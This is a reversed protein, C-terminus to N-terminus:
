NTRFTYVGSSSRNGNADNAIIKWYYTASNEVEVELSTEQAQYDITEILITADTQDLYIEYNILDDDVDSCTWNLTVLSNIDPTVNAGSRPTILEAPFPAYNIVADGALYFKWSESEAANTDPEGISKVLWSYPEAKALAITTQNTEATYSQSSQTLLNSVVVEYSVADTAASWSFSVNSQTDNLSVGDLCTENNAPSLLSAIGPEVPIPDEPACSSLLLIFGGFLLKIKKM